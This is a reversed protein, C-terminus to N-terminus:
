SSARKTFNHLVKKVLNCPNCSVSITDLNSVMLTDQLGQLRTLFFDLHLGAYPTIKNAENIEMTRNAM